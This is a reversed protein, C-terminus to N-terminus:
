CVDNARPGGAGLLFYLFFYAFGKRSWHPLDGSNRTLTGTASRAEAAASWTYVEGGSTLAAFHGSGASVATVEKGDLAAVRTSDEMTVGTAGGGGSSFDFQVVGGDDTVALGYHGDCSTAM